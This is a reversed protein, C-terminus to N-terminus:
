NGWINDKPHPPRGLDLFKLGWGEPINGKADEKRRAIAHVRNDLIGKIIFYHHKEALKGKKYHIETNKVITRPVGGRTIVRPMINHEKSRANDKKGDRFVTEYRTPIQDEYFGIFRAISTKEAQWMETLPKKPIYPANALHVQENRTKDVQDRPLNTQNNTLNNTNNNDVAKTSLKTASITTNNKDVQAQLSVPEPAAAAIQTAALASAIPLKFKDTLNNLM